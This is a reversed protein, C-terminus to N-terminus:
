NKEYRVELKSIREKLSKNEQILEQIAKWALSIMSYQEIGQGDESIIESPCTYGEGIVLGIHKKSEEKENKLNYLCIDSKEILEIANVKLKKINKKKSKLSTQTLKPTIIGVPEITTTNTGDTLSMRTFEKGDNLLIVKRNGSNLQIWVGNIANYLFLENGNTDNKFILQAPNIRMFRNKNGKLFMKINSNGEEGTFEMSGSKDINLANSTVAINDSTLNITKGHYVSKTQM